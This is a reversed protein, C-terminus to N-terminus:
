NQKIKLKRYQSIDMFVTIALWIAVFGALLWTNEALMLVQESLLSTAFILVLYYPLNLGAALLVVRAKQKNAGQYFMFFALSNIHIMALLLSKIRLKSGQQPQKSFCRGLTYNIASGVTAALVMAITLYVIDQWQPKALVVLVVAFFQGPFYFGIYVISELLIIFAILVYFYDDFSSKVKELLELGPPIVNFEILGSFLGLVCLASLPLWFRFQMNM